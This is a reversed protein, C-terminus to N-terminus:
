KKGKLIYYGAGLVVLTIIIKQLQDYGFGKAVFDQWWTPTATNISINSYDGPQVDSGFRGEVNNAVTRGTLAVSGADYMKKNLWYIPVWRSLWDDTATIWDDNIDVYDPM